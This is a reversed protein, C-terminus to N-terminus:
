LFLYKSKLKAKVQTPEAEAEMETTPEAAANFWGTMPKEKSKSAWQDRRLSWETIERTVWAVELWTPPWAAFNQLNHTRKAGSLM